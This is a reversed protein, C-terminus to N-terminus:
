EEGGAMAPENSWGGGLAKYLAALNRAREARSAALEEEARLLAGESELVDLFPTLGHRYRTRATAVASRAAAEAQALAAERDGERATRALMDEVDRLAGLVTREYGILAQSHRERAIDVNARGRGGDLLPWRLAGGVSGQLSDAAILGTLASSVLGLAGTLSLRPYLDAKAVGIDASAAALRREAAVIDPRRRLLDSPLGAPVAAPISPLAGPAALAGDLSAPFGGLLFAIAHIRAQAEAELPPLAAAAQATQRRQQEVELTSILGNRARSDLLAGIERQRALAEGAIATRRQLLRLDVYHRAVEAALAVRLDRGTWVEAETRAAAAEVARKTGGWLDIEWSADFGTRFTSFSSGPLGAGGGPPLSGSFAGALPGNESLRTRSAEGSAGLQPRGSAGAVIERARAERIRSEAERLDLNAAFAAAILRDLIPDDFRRWWDALAGEDAPAAAQSWNDPLAASPPRHDPGVTACASLAVAALLWALGHRILSDRTEM